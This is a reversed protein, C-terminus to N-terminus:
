EKSWVPQRDRRYVVEGGLITADTRGTLPQNWFPSNVSKSFNTEDNLKWSAEPDIIALDAVAGIAATGCPLGLAAAPGCTLRAMASLLPLDGARWLDLTLPLATQLGIVGNAADAFAVDKEISSHPAHDTAIADLTGDRLGEIVARRDAETRLPPAMKTESGFGEVAAHTLTFHHPTAEATVRVGRRKADRITQVANATSVHCVHMRGGTYEALAVDRAVAIDESVGPIGRLGLRTSVGAEHMTGGASLAPEDAHTLLPLDHDLAYELARRMIAPNKVPLGDDSVAIAGARRMEAFPALTEGGQGMTVAGVPYVRCVGVEAARRAVAAVLEASDIVPRTNAMAVISTFGGASAARSGSAIDEKYEEGPERLHVHVDVLGPTVWKGKADILNAATIPASGAAVIDRITGDEILIDVTRDVESKPDLLRGNQIVLKM